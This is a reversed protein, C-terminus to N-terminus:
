GSRPPSARGRRPGQHGLRRVRVLRGTFRLLRTQTGYDSEIKLTNDDQWTIHLRTPGRMLGLRAM